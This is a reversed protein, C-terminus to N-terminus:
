TIPTREKLRRLEDIAADLSDNTIICGGDSLSPTRVVLTVKPEEGPFMKRFRDEIPVLYENAIEDKFRQLTSSM